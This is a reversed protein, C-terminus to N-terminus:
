GGSVARELAAVVEAQEAETLSPFMPLSILEEYLSDCNPYDGPGGPIDGSIPHHHVPVYHVQVGIGAARLRQFAERRNAVRVPFLHYGHRFGTPAAPPLGIPM